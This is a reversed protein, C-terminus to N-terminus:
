VVGDKEGVVVGEVEGLVVCISILLYICSILHSSAYLSFKCGIYCAVCGSRQSVTLIKVM